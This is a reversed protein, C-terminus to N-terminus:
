NSSNGNGKSGKGELEILRSDVLRLKEQALAVRSNDEYKALFTEFEKRAAEYEKLKLYSDAKLFQARPAYDTDYYSELVEDFYIIASRYYGMRFYLEGNKYSKRALKKRCEFLKGEVEGKLDSHPYDELFYQYKEIAQYTYDQDLAYKPSLEFYCFGMKYMTQEVLPSQPMTTTLKEYESAALIYERMMFHSEALYFQVSDLLTSGPFSLLIARFADVADLYDEDEFLEMARNFSTRVDPKEKINRRSCSVQFLLALVLLSHLFIKQYCNFM